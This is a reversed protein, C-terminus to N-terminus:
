KGLRSIWDQYKLKFELLDQENMERVLNTLEQKQEKSLGKFQNTNLDYHSILLRNIFRLIPYKKLLKIAQAHYIVTGRQEKDLKNFINQWDNYISIYRALGSQKYEEFKRNFIAIPDFLNIIKIPIDNRVNGTPNFYFIIFFNLIDEINEPPYNNLWSFLINKKIFDELDFNTPLALKQIEVAMNKKINEMEIVVLNIIDENEKPLELNSKKAKEIIKKNKDFIAYLIELHKVYNDRINKIAEIIRSNRIDSTIQTLILNDELLKIFDELQNYNAIDNAQSYNHDTPTNSLAFTKILEKLSKSLSVDLKSIKLKEELAKQIEQIKGKLIFPFQPGTPIKLMEKLDNNIQLIEIYTNNPNQLNQIAQEIRYVLKKITDALDGLDQTKELAQKLAKLNKNIIESFDKNKIYTQAKESFSEIKDELTKKAKIHAILKIKEIEKPNPISFKVENQEQKILSDLINNSLIKEPLTIHELYNLEQSLTFLDNGVINSLANIIFFLTVQFYYKKVM